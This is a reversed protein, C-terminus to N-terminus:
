GQPERPVWAVGSSGAQPCLCTWAESWPLGLGPQGAPVHHATPDTPLARRPLPRCTVSHTIDSGRALSISHPIAFSRAHSTTPLHSQPVTHSQAQSVTHNHSPSEMLSQTSGATSIAHSHRHCQAILSPMLLHSRSHSHPQAPSLMLSHQSNM